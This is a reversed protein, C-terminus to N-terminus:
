DAHTLGITYLIKSHLFHVKFPIKADQQKNPRCALAIQLHLFLLIWYSLWLCM